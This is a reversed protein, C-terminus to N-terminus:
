DTAVTDSPARLASQRGRFPTIRPGRAVTRRDGEAAREAFNTVLVDELFTAALESRGSVEAKAYISTAQQRLTKEKVDRLGAIEAFSFGKLLLWAVEQEAATFRWSHFYQEVHRGLEGSLRAVRERERRLADRLEASAEIVWWLLCGLGLTVAFEFLHHFEFSDLFNILELYLIYLDSSFAIMAAALVFCHMTSNSLTM